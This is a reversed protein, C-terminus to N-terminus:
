RSRLPSIERKYGSCISFVGMIGDVGLCNVLEDLAGGTIRTSEAKVDVSVTMEGWGTMEVPTAFGRLPSIEGETMEVSASFDREETM